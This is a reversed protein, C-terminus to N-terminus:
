LGAASSRAGLKRGGTLERIRESLAQYSGTGTVQFERNRSQEPGCGTPQLAPLSMVNCSKGSHLASAACFFDRSAPFGSQRRPVSLSINKPRIRLPISRVPLTRLLGAGVAGPRVDDAGGRRGGDAEATRLACQRRNRACFRCADRRAMQGGRSLLRRSVQAALLARALLRWYVFSDGRGWPAREVSEFVAGAGGALEVLATETWWTLHHPPANILFNPIRSLASPVHPVGVCLLGNPKAARVIEAFFQKPDRVHELVQFCCVADYYGAREVLHASLTEARLGDVASAEALHPDIGTYDAHPVVNRFVSSGCGVDLVRAGAPIAKAAIGFEQRLASKPILRQRKQWASMGGYFTSDGQCPPDFFYLGTPSEWLGFRDVGAFSPRVDAGFEIRWLDTLLRATVWQM